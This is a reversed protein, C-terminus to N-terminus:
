SQALKNSEGEKEWNRLWHEDTQVHDERVFKANHLDFDRFYFGGITRMVYGEVERGQAAKLGEHTFENKIRGKDFQGRWIVPVHEVDLLECWAVTEDWSLAENNENWISFVQVYSRLDEYKISHTGYLNEGCIRWGQPLKHSVEFAFKSAYTRTPHYPTKLSRAHWEGNAYCTFNEGDMKETLVVKQGEFFSIDRHYSDERHDEPSWPVHPTSPYKRPEMM